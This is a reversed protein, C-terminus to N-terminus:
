VDPSETDSFSRVVSTLVLHKRKDIKSMRKIASNGWALFVVGGDAESLGSGGQKNIAQIV